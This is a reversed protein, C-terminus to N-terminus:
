GNFQNDQKTFKNTLHDINLWVMHKQKSYVNVFLCSKMWSVMKLSLFDVISARWIKVQSLSM